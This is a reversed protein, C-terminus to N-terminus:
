VFSNNRRRKQLLRKYLPCLEFLAFGSLDRGAACVALAERDQQAGRCDEEEVEEEQEEVESPQKVEVTELRLSRLGSRM